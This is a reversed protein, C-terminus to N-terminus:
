VFLTTKIAERYDIYAKYANKALTALKSAIEKYKPQEEDTDNLYHQYSTLTISSM